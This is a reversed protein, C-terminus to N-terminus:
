RHWAGHRFNCPDPTPPENVVPLNNILQSAVSEQHKLLIQCFKVKLSLEGHKM